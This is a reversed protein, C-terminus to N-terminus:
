VRERSFPNHNSLYAPLGVGFIIFLHPLFVVVFTFILGVFYLPVSLSLPLFSLTSLCNCVYVLNQGVFLYPIFFFIFCTTTKGTNVSNGRSSKQAIEGLKDRVKDESNSHTSHTSAVSSHRGKVEPTGDEDDFSVVSAVVKKKKKKENRKM